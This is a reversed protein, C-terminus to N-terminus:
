IYIRNKKYKFFIMIKTLGPSVGVPIRMIRVFMISTDGVNKAADFVVTYSVPDTVHGTTGVLWNLEPGFKKVYVSDGPEFHREHARRDNTEKMQKQKKHIKGPLSPHLLDLRSRMKRNNLIEMPSKSTTSQPTRRYDFFIEAIESGHQRGSNQHHRIKRDTSGTRWPWQISSPVSSLNCPRNRLKSVTATLTTSSTIHTEIWKSTTDVAVLLM